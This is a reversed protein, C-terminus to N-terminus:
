RDGRRMKDDVGRCRGRYRDVTFFTRRVYLICTASVMWRWIQNADSGYGIVNSVRLPNVIHIVLRVKFRRVISDLGQLLLYCHSDSPDHFVHLVYNGDKDKLFRGFRESYWLMTAVIQRVISGRGSVSKVKLLLSGHPYLLTARTFFYLSALALCILIPAPVTGLKTKIAYGAACILALKYHYRM